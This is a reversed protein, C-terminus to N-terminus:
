RAAAPSSSSGSPPTTGASRARTSSRCGAARSTTSSRTTASSDQASLLKPNAAHAYSGLVTVLMEILSTKGSRERGYLIPLAADPYGTLAIALV